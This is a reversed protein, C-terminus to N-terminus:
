PILSPTPNEFELNGLSRPVEEPSLLTVMSIDGQIRDPLKELYGWVLDHRETKRMGAFEPDIVRIRISLANYRYLDIQAHPHERLYDLLGKKVATLARDSKGRIMITM